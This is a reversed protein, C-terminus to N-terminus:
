SSLGTRWSKALALADEYRAEAECRGLSDMVLMMGKSAGYGVAISVWRGDTSEWRLSEDPRTQVLRWPGSGESEYLHDPSAMMVPGSESDSM